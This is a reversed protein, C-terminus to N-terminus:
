IKLLKLQINLILLNMKKEMIFNYQFSQNSKLNLIRIKYLLGSYGLLGACQNKRKCLHYLVMMTGQSFGVFFINKEEIKFTKSVKEIYNNLYPGAKELGDGISEPSISTLEFWQFANDAFECQFPANKHYFFQIQCVTLGFIQM